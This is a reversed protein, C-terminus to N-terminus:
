LWDTFTTVLYSAVFCIDDGVQRLWSRLTSVSRTKLVGIGEVEMKVVDGDKLWTYKAPVLEKGTEPDMKASFEAICGDGITGSGLFYGPHVM